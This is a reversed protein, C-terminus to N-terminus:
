MSQAADMQSNRSEKEKRKWGPEAHLAALLRWAAGDVPWGAASVAAPPAPPARRCTDAAPCHLLEPAAAEPHRQSGAGHQLRQLQRRWPASAAPRRRADRLQWAM